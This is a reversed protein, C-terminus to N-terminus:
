PDHRESLLPVAAALVYGVLTNWILLMVLALLLLPTQPPRRLLLGLVILASGLSDAVTLAHLKELLSARGLLPWSGRLWFLVGLALALSSVLHLLSAVPLPATM